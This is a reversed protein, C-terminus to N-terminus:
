RGKRKRKEVKPQISATEVKQGSIEVERKSAIEAVSEHFEGEPAEIIEDKDFHHTIGSKLGTYSGFLKMKHIAM